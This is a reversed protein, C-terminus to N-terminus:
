VVGELELALARANDRQTTQQHWLEIRHPVPHMWQTQAWQAHRKDALLRLGDIVLNLDSETLMISLARHTM